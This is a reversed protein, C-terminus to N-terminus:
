QNAFHGSFSFDDIAKLVSVYANNETDSMTQFRIGRVKAKAHFVTIDQGLIHTDIQNIDIIIKSLKPTEVIYKTM